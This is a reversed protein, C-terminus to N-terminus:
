STTQGSKWRARRGWPRGRPPGMARSRCRSPSGPDAWGGSRPDLPAALTSGRRSALIREAIARTEALERPHAFGTLWLAPAILLCAGARSLLGVAGDTPLALEGTVAIGGMVLVMH